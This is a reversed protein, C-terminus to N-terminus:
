SMGYLLVLHSLMRGTKTERVGADNAHLECFRGRQPFGRIAVAAVRAAGAAERRAQGLFLFFADQLANRVLPAREALVAVIATTM